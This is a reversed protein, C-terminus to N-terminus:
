SEVGIRSCSAQSGQQAESLVTATHLSEACFYPWLIHHSVMVSAASPEKYCIKQQEIVTAQLHWSHLVPRHELVPLRRTTPIRTGDM